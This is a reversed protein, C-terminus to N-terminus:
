NSDFGKERPIVGSPLRQGPAPPLLVGIDVDSEKQEDPTLYSGFLYVAESDPYFAFVTSIIINRSM